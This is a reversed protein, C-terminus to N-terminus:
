CLQFQPTSMMLHLLGRVTEDSVPGPRASLYDLFAQRERPAPDTQFLRWALARVLAAPDARLDAPAIRELPAGAGARRALRQLAPRDDRVLASGDGRVLANALNYRILLTSTSIWARGGDWGKVSPPAFLTQGMQRLANATLPDPPLPMGLSRVSQVVWQVPSKIQARVVEPAFFETSRFIRRLLPRIAYDSQRFDSALADVLPPPPNEGSLFVWLKRAIFRACEPQDLIRDLVGDGDLPGTKGLFTKPGSDQQFRVLRFSETAPDIRYGVFARAAERIDTETYHGEGLTFLEMLERAFNENPHGPRSQVTDLYFLMAPDRSIAKALDRFSGLAGTRLTRNQQWLLYPSRVKEASTAFHGHWFLTVKERLPDAGSQMRRLWDGRMAVLHRQDERRKEMLRMRRTEEDLERMERRLAFMGGPKAWDPPAEPEAPEPVDVLSAVAGDIGRAHLAAIEDPAGGFGARNLLHAAAEPTWRANPLPDLM